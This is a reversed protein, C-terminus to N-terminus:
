FACYRQVLGTHSEAVRVTLGRCRIWRRLSDATNHQVVSEPLVAGKVDNETLIVLADKMTSVVIVVIVTHVILIFRPICAISLNLADTYFGCGRM